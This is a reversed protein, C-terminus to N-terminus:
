SRPIIHEYKTSKNQPPLVTHGEIQGIITICHINSRFQPVKAEGLEKINEAANVKDEKQKDVGESIGAEDYIFRYIDTM